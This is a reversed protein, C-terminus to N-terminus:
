YGVEMRSGPAGKIDSGYMKYKEKRLKSCKIFASKILTFWLASDISPKKSVNRLAVLRFRKVKAKSLSELLPCFSVMNKVLVDYSHDGPLMTFDKEESVEQAM